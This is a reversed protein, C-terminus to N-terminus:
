IILTVNGIMAIKEKKMFYKSCFIFYYCAKSKIKWPDISHKEPLVHCEIPGSCSLFSRKKM